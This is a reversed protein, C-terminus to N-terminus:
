EVDEDINPVLWLLTREGHNNFSDLPVGAVNVLRPLLQESQVFGSDVGLYRSSIVNWVGATDKLAIGVVVNTLRM